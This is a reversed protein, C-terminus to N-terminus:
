ECLGNLNCVAGCDPDTTPCCDQATFCTQRCLQNICQAGTGCDANTSCPPMCLGLTDSGPVIIYPDCVSQEIGFPPCDFQGPRCYKLCFNGDTFEFCMVADDCWNGAPTCEDFPYAQGGYVHSAIQDTCLGSRMWYNRCAGNFGCSNSTWPDCVQQCQGTSGQPADCYLGEQCREAGDSNTCTQGQSLPGAEVCLGYSNDMQLCTGDTCDSHTNCESPVCIPEAVGDFGRCYRGVACNSPSGLDDCPLFCAGEGDDNIEVCLFEGHGSQNPDCADFEQSCASTPPDDNNVDQNDNNVPPTDSNDPPLIPEDNNEEDDNGQNTTPQNTQNNTTENNNSPTSNNLSESNDSRSEMCVGIALDCVEGDLCDDDSECDPEALTSSACGAAIVLALIAGFITSVSITFGKM